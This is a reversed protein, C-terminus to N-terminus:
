FENQYLPVSYQATFLATSAIRCALLASRPLRDAVHIGNLIFITVFGQDAKGAGICIFVVEAPQIVTPAEAQSARKIAKQPVSSRKLDTFMNGANSM